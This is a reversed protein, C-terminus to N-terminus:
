GIKPGIVREIAAALLGPLAEVLQQHWDAQNLVDTVQKLDDVILFFIFEAPNQGNQFLELQQVGPIQRTEEAARQLWGKLQDIQDPQAVIREILHLNSKEM